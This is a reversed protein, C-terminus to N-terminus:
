RDSAPTLFEELAKDTVRWYKGIKVAKLRRETAKVNRLAAAAEELSIGMQLGAAIALCADLANHEGLLPLEFRVNNVYFEIGDEGKNKM